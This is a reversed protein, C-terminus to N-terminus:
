AVLWYWDVVCGSTRTVECTSVLVSPASCAAPWIMPSTLTLKRLSVKGSSFITSVL